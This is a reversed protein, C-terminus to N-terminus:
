SETGCGQKKWQFLTERDNPEGVVQIYSKKISKETSLTRLFIHGREGQKNGLALGGNTVPTQLGM